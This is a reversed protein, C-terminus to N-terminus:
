GQDMASRAANDPLKDDSAAYILQETNVYDVRVQQNDISLLHRSLYATGQRDEYVVGVFMSQQKNVELTKSLVDRLSVSLQAAVGRPSPVILRAILVEFGHDKRLTVINQPTWFTTCATSITPPIFKVPLLTISRAEHNTSINRILFGASKDVSEDQWGSAVIVPGENPSVYLNRIPLRIGVRELSDIAEIVGDFQLSPLYLDPKGPSLTRNAEKYWEDAREWWAPVLDKPGIAWETRDLPHAIFEEANPWRRRIERLGEKLVWLREAVGLINRRAEADNTRHQQCNNLRTQLDTFESAPVIDKSEHKASRMRRNSLFFGYISLALSFTIAVLAWVLAGIHGGASAIVPAAVTVGSGVPRQVFTVGFYELIKTLAAVAGIAAFGFLWNERKKWMDVM